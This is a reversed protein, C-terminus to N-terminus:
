ALQAQQIFARIKEPDKRGPASEVGSAVDVGWPSVQEVASTVNEPTLGGALLLPYQAALQSALSWDGTQGTGGYEGPLYADVLLAPPSSRLAYIGAQTGAEEPSQPRIAKYARDGLQELLSAPEDGSLQALPIRCSDLISTIESYSANVFVGVATFHYGQSLLADQIKRCSDPQIWRKSRPYFNYGLMDAGSDLAVVADELIKIGCIKVQM